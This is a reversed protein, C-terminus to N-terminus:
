EPDLRPEDATGSEEPALRDQEQGGGQLMDSQQLDQKDVAGDGDQDLRQMLQQGDTTGLQQGAATAGFISLEQEDLQGDGNADYHELIAEPDVGAQEQQMGQQQQMGQGQTATGTGTMGQEQTGTTGGTAAAGEKDDSGAVLPGAFLSLSAATAIAIATKKM